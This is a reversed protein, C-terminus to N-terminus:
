ARRKWRSSDQIRGDLLAAMEAGYSGDVREVWPPEVVLGGAKGPAGELLVVRAPGHVTPHVLRLRKPELDCARFAGLLRSLERAPYVFCVRGRRGLMRRAGEIFPLLTGQRADGRSKNSSPRGQGPENFPPNAVVLNAIGPHAAAAETVGGQIVDARDGWGNAEINYKALAAAASDVEVLLARKTAAFHLLSLAVPGVGAGLDVACAPAGAGVSKAAFAALLLADVNTRYAGKPLQRLVVRGGFLTDETFDTTTM